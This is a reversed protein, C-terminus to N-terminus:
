PAKTISALENYKMVILTKGMFRTRTITISGNVVVFYLHLLKLTM